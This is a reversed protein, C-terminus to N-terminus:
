DATPEPDAVPDVHIMVSGVQDFQSELCRTATVAIQHGERVTMDGDVVLHAQVQYQGGVMRIKLDHVDTVGATGALCSRIRAVSEARPAADVMEQLATWMVKVGVSAILFAVLLAAVADLIHWNEDILAGGIGLLVAVSSLADSRHHWANAQVAMSRIRRGVRITYQYLVEKVVISLAAGALALVTPNHEEHRYIAVTAGYGLFVAVSILAVGVGASALTEIRAHGFHHHADPGKRGFRVGFLVIADTVFDSVSHVADAIMAQSNGLVGAVFKCVILGLNAIAGVWTVRQGAESTDTADM